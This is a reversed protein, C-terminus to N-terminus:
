STGLTRACLRAVMSKLWLWQVGPPAKSAQPIEPFQETLRGTTVLWRVFALRKPDLQAQDLSTSTYTHRFRALRKIAIEEWGAQRLLSLTQRSNMPKM